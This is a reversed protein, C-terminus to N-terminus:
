HSSILYNIVADVLVFKLCGGVVIRVHYMLTIHLTVGGTYTAVATTSVMILGIFMFLVRDSFVTMIKFWTAMAKQKPDITVSVM